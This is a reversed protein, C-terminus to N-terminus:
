TNNIKKRNVIFVLFIIIELPSIVGSIIARVPNSLPFISRILVDIAFLCVFMIVLLLRNNIFVKFKELNFIIISVVLISVILGLIFSTIM